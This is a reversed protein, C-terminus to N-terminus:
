LTSPLTAVPVVKVAPTPELDAPVTKTVPGTCPLLGFRTTGFGDGDADLCVDPEPEDVIPSTPEVVPEDVPTEDVPAVTTTTTTPTVTTPTEDVPAVTTTTTTTTTTTPHHGDGGNNAAAHGAIGFALAGTAAIIALRKM